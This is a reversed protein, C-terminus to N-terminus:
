STKTQLLKLEVAKWRIAYDVLAADGVAVSTVLMQPLGMAAMRQWQLELITSGGFPLLVKGPLRTSGLRAQILLTSSNNKKM